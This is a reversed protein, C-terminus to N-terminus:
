EYKAGKRMNDIKWLPQMNKYNFCDLQEFEKSLDFAACPKIHDIEWKGHNKWTMGPKFQNELHIMLDAVSCGIYEKFKYHKTANKEKLAMYVRHRLSQKLKHVPDHKLKYFNNAYKKKAIKEKNNKRYLKKMQYIKEKNKERYLKSKIRRKDKTAQYREKSHQRVHEINAKVWNKRNLNLRARCKKSCFVIENQSPEFLKYCQKCHKM